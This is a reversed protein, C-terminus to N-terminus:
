YKKKDFIHVPYNALVGGDMMIHAKNEPTIHKHIHGLSDACLARYYMPISVSIRVADRIKMDPYNEYSFYVTKQASLDTGTIYLEKCQGKLALEHLQRFTIDANGTKQAIVKGLWNSMTEGRYWGFQHTLRRLGGFFFFRGDNFKRIQTEYVLE